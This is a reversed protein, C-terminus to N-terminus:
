KKLLFFAAAAIGILLMPSVASGLSTAETNVQAGGGTNYDTTQGGSSSQSGGGSKTAARRQRSNLMSQAAAAAATTAAQAATAGAKLAEEKAKQAEQQARLADDANNLGSKLKENKTAEALIPALAAIIPAAAALTAAAAPVAGITGSENGLIPKKNKGTNIAKQLDTFNGGLSLWKKHLEIQNARSLKGAYDHINLTVLGLYASRPAVGAATKVKQVVPAAAKKVAAATNKAGTAVKKLLKGAKTAGINNGCDACGMGLFPSNSGAYYGPGNITRLIMPFDKKFAFPKQYNFQPLCADLIETKGNKTVTCYVHGPTNNTPDYSVFRITVAYGLNTCLGAAALTLSKCDGVGSTLLAAPSKVDQNFYGDAKYIIHDRLFQHVDAATKFHTASKRTQHVALSFKNLIRQQIDTNTAKTNVETPVLNSTPLLQMIAAKSVRM